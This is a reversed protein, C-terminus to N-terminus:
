TLDYRLTLPMFPYDAHTSSSDASGTIGTLGGTGSRDVIGSRGSATRGDYAGDGQLVFTGSRGDLSATVQM